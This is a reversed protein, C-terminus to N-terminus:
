LDTIMKMYRSNGVLLDCSQIIKVQELLEGVCSSLLLCVHECFVSVDM